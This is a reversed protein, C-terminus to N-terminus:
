EAALRIGHRAAAALLPAVDPPGGGPGSPGGPVPAGIEAFLREMAGAPAAERLRFGHGHLVVIAGAPADPSHLAPVHTARAAPSPSASM